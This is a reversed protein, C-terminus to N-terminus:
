ETKFDEFSLVKLQNSVVEGRENVYYESGKPIICNMKALESYKTDFGDLYCGNFDSIILLGEDLITKVEPLYSHLGKEITYTGYFEIGSTAKERRYYVKKHYVSEYNSGCIAKRVIKFVPIDKEAIMKIPMDASMWCM